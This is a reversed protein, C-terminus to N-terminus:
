ALNRLLKKIKTNTFKSQEFGSFVREFVEDSIDNLVTIENSEIANLIRDVKMVVADKYRVYSDHKIFPHDGARLICTEDYEIEDRVSSINVAIVSLAGTDKNFFQKSCIVHLHNIKGAISLISKKVDPRFETM